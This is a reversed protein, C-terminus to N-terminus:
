TQQIGQGKLDLTKDQDPTFAYSAVTVDWLVIKINCDM